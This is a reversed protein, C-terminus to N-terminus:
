ENDLVGKNLTSIKIISAIFIENIRQSVNM